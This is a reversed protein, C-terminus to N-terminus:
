ASLFSKCHEYIAAGSGHEGTMYEKAALESQRKASGDDPANVIMEALTEADLFPTEAYLCDGARERREPSRRYAAARACRLDGTIGARSSEGTRTDIVYLAWSRSGLAYIAGGNQWEASFKDFLMPEAESECEPLLADWASVEGSNVEVKYAGNLYNPVIYVYGGAYILKKSTGIDKMGERNGPVTIYELRNKGDWKVLKAKGDTLYSPSLWFNDGDFCIANYGFGLQGIRRFVCENGGIDVIVIGDALCPMVYLKGGVTATGYFYWTPDPCCSEYDQIWNDIYATEYTGSDIRVIAPYTGPILFVFGDRSIAHSFKCTANYHKFRKADIVRLGIREFAGSEMDYVAIEEARYPSFYLKGGCEAVGGFLRMGDFKEGPFSGLYEAVWTEKDCKFLGNFWYAAFWIYEGDDYCSEFLLADAREEGSLIKANQIMVPKGTVAYMAVLSSGDGYYADSRAIARHLDSTDDYIGFGARRYESVIGEYERLLQPRMSRYTAENLPHPRWWLAVDDRGRFCDFVSRLKAL